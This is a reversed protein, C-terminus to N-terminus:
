KLLDVIELDCKVGYRSEIFDIMENTERQTYNTIKFGLAGLTISIIYKKSPM